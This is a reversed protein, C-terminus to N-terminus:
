VLCFVNFKFRHCNIFEISPIIIQNFIIVDNINSGFCTYTIILTQEVGGYRRRTSTSSFYGLEAHKSVNIQQEDTFSYSSEDPEIELITFTNSDKYRDTIADFVKTTAQVDTVNTMIEGAFIVAAMCFGALGVILKKSKGNMKM